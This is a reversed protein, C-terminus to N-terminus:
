RGTRDHSRPDDVRRQRYITGDRATVRWPRAHHVAVRLEPADRDLTACVLGPTGDPSSQVLPPSASVLARLEDDRM